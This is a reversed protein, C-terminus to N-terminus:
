FFFIKLVKGHTQTTLRPTPPPFSLLCHGVAAGGDRSGWLLAGRCRRTPTECCKWGGSSRLSLGLDKNM